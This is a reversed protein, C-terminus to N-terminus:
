DFKIEVNHSSFKFIHLNVLAFSNKYITRLKMVMNIFLFFATSFGISTDSASLSYRFEPVPM